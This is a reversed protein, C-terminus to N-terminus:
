GGLTTVTAFSNTDYITMEGDPTIGVMRNGPLFNAAGGGLDAFTHLMGGSVGDFMVVGDQTTVGVRDGSDSGAGGRFGDVHITPGIRTGTDTDITWIEGRGSTDSAFFLWRRHESVFWDDPRTELSLGVPRLQLTSPDFTTLRPSTGVDTWGIITGDARWDPDELEPPIDIVDGSAIDVVGMTYTGKRQTLGIVALLKRGDPSYAVATADGPIRRSVPGSGDLRWRAVLAENSNFNVLETQNKALWISSASNAGNQASLERIFGGTRLDREDLRGRSDGCYFRGIREAVTFITCLQETEDDVDVEWTPATSSGVNLRVRGFIGNGVLAEGGDIAVLVETTGRPASIQRVVDFTLPDVLRVPGAESGVALLGGTVFALGATTAHLYAGEPRPLNAFPAAASGDSLSYAIVEGDFGGSVYLHSNDPGFVANDVVVPLTIPGIVPRQTTTDFVVLVSRQRSSWDAYWYVQAFLSGDASSFFRSDGRDADGIVLAWEDGVAGTDLDYPRIRQDAGVVFSTSGDPMVIGQMVGGLSPPLRQTGLFGVDATFTSLLASRTRPTDDFRYAEIALLAAIDRQASRISISRGVLAEVEADRQAAVAESAATRARQRQTLAILGAVLALVLFCATAVLLRRLRRARQRDREHGADRAVRSAEVFAHEDPNLQHGHEPLAEVLAELRSGRYLESNARGSEEWSREANVMHQLQALWRRDAELWDRLRPWNTLLAEHALEIVPERTALDRDAVLLRALVFRDAVSRDPETLESFRARRRTDPAGQGPAVLRGFLQRTQTQMDDDLSTYIQEARRGIAGGLGGLQNVSQRSICNDVRREYLEAMAFQLLPLGAVHVIAEAVLATVVGEEFDVGHLEAPRAVVEELAQPSMPPLPFSGAAILNGILADQLPRDYLDARVTTVCHVGCSGTAVLASLFRARELDDALTWCEEFQDVVLVLQGSGESAAGKLWEIPVDTDSDTAVVQRLAERLALTPRDGPVMTAVRVGENRLLPVLGAHVLSSKGSGSPGVVVVFGRAMLTQRLLAAVEDRGFFDSADAEGFARLGKYPNVSASVTTSLARVARRRTSDPSRSSTPGLPSLVGEPRGVADRWAVILEAMSDFRVQPDASTARALVADLAECPECLTGALSPLRWRNAPQVVSLPSRGTLLEWMMCGFSFIDSQVTDGTRDVLEPAAYVRTRDGTQDHTSSTVAIGFDSLYGNGVDDFLVNSPKIDCHVVGATHAAFLASGVEEVLRSVRAVSFPGGSVMSGLATGGVLLRFVLYAGGPERWYDYLPVIHPHELRAVMQAEAEFRQIFDARNALDPRIAKIAVERNTGPQTAAYVRGFAGEGLVERVTYGRLLSARGTVHALPEGSALSRELAVLEESPDLGTEEGLRTRFSQFVRLADAHRGTSFLARMLLGVPRERLRHDAALRELEPIVRHRHGLALLAEAREEKAM